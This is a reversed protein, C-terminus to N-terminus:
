RGGDHVSAVPSAGHSEPANLWKDVAESLGELSVPKAIHDDMGARICNERAGEMADATMAIIVTRRGPLEIRRIERTADYGDMVPMQCDMFVLDYPAMAFLKVAEQGNAAVDARLGVKELMRVAVKQNVANDEAVMVRIARAAFGRRSVSRAATDGKPSALREGSLYDTGQRETCASALTKLLLSDRVPKVLVAVFVSSESQRLESCQGVSTLMIIVIGGISPDAKIVAALTLGDMDPMHHDLIAFGYPDGNMVAARLVQLAMEGSDVSTNRVEWSTLRASLVRRNVENDDVVLVRANRLETVSTHGAQPKSDLVMPLTFWFTSGQGERREVGITGGMLETLQKSIAPGLGTGGHRRTTSNDLQSFKEFLLRIKEEPIGGGTDSVSIRLQAKQADQSLCQITILVEGAPTFKVANGILNTLIQRVRGGDGVFYRPVDPPYDLLLGLAKEEAKAAMMENVDEIVMGLDFSYSEISLKGAEIKSFDLIDNIVTLLFEGSRRVIEACERQEGTLESDLLVGTMSIVGNMPTRIEHSMNALFESKCQSAANATEEARKREEVERSLSATRREVREILKREREQLGRIRWRYALVGSTAVATACMLYFWATQHFKPTLELGFSAGAENWIGDNNCAVVRFSYTGPPLNTYYAVRRNGADVWDRDFGELRYRFRVREPFLFSLATYHFELRSGARIRSGSALDKHGDSTVTEVFVPPRRLNASIRPPDVIVIGGYTPFWLSGDRMKSASPSYGFNFDSSGIIGDAAGFVELKLTRKLGHDIDDFESAPIRILGRRSTIWFCHLEDELIQYLNLDPLGAGRTYSHVAGDSIRSIGGSSLVWLSRKQDEYLHNVVNGALGKTTDLPPLFRGGRYEQLGAQGGVWVSGDARETIAAISATALGDSEGMVSKRGQIFRVLESITGVWIAGDSQEFLIRVAGRLQWTRRAAPDRLNGARFCRLTGDESGAWINGSRDRVIPWTQDSPFGDKTTYRHANGGPPIRAVGNGTGLWIEGGRDQFITRVMDSPLDERISRVTFRYNKLRNLGGGATGLWLSGEQDEYICRVVQNSLGERTQYSSFRGNSFRNLGGGDTGIWLNGDRDARLSVISNHTLGDRMTYNKFRGDRFESLGGRTGIWLQGEKGKALGWVSNSPLGDDITYTQLSGERLKKLGSNTGVWLTGAPDELACHSNLEKGGKFATSLQGHDYKMLGVDTGVWVVGKSDVLVLRVNEDPLASSAVVQTFRGNRVQIIGDGGTGIWLSGDADAALATVRDHALLPTNESSFVRFGVGDFRALGGMTAIWLYGDSTQTIARVSNQPLGQATTWVDHGYQTNALNPNLGWMVTNLCIGLAFRLWIM